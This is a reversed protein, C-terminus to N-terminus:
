MAFSSMNSVVCQAVFAPISSQSKQKRDGVVFVLLVTYELM